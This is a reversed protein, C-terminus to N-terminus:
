GSALARYALPTQGTWAKFARTFASQDSFGTLFAVEALSNGSNALLSEAAERQAKNAITQFSEGHEALRRHLTRESMGLRRAVQSKRPRGDPLSDTVAGYVQAPLSREAKEEKLENLTALIFASLGEDALRTPTELTQASLHLANIRDGFRIPCGFYSRHPAGDAPRPHTLSVALPAVKADTVQRMVSVVAALACENALHAGRRHGPRSLVFVGGGVEDHLEYEVTDTLVLIYRALRLLADRLTSATKLALGLADFDDVRVADGYRFPLEFDDDGAARELLEYYANEEVAERIWDGRDANLTLGVSSLLDEHSVPGKSVEVVRRIVPGGVVRM